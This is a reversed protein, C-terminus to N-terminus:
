KDPRCEYVCEVASGGDRCIVKKLHDGEVSCDSGSWADEYGDLEGENLARDCPGWADCKDDMLQWTLYVDPEEPDTTIGGCTLYWRTVDGVTFQHWGVSRDGSDCEPIRSDTVWSPYMYAVNARMSDSTVKNITKSGGNKDTFSGVRVTDTFDALSSTSSGNGLVIAGATTIQSINKLNVQGVSSEVVAKLADLNWGKMGNTDSKNSYLDMRSQAGFGFQLEGKRETTTPNNKNKVTSVNLTEYAVYPVPFFTTMQMARDGDQQEAEAGRVPVSLLGVGILLLVLKAYGKMM